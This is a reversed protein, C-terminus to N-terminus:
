EDDTHASELNYNWSACTYKSFFFNEWWRRHHYHHCSPSRRNRTWSSDFSHLDRPAGSPPQQHHPDRPVTTDNWPCLDPRLDSRSLGSWRCTYLYKAVCTQTHTHTYTCVEPKETTQGFPSKSMERWIKTLLWACKQQVKMRRSMVRHSLGHNPLQVCVM